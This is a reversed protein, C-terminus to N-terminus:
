DGHIGCSSMGAESGGKKHAQYNLAKTQNDLIQGNTFRHSARGLVLSRPWLLKGQGVGM